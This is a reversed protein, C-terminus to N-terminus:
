VQLNLYMLLSFELQFITVSNNDCTLFFSVPSFFFSPFFLHLSTNEICWPFLCAREDPAPHSVPIVHLYLYQFFFFWWSFKQTQISTYQSLAYCFYLSEVSLIRLIFRLSSFINLHCKFFYNSLCKQSMGFADSASPWSFCSFGVQLGKAAAIETVFVSTCLCPLTLFHSSLIIILPIVIWDLTSTKGTVKSPM